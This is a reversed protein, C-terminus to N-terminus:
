TGGISEREVAAAASLAAAVEADSWGCDRMARPVYDAPLGANLLDGPETTVTVVMPCGMEVWVDPDLVIMTRRAEPDDTADTAFTEGTGLPTPGAHALVTRTRTLDGM